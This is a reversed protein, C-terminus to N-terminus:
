VITVRKLEKPKRNIIVLEPYKSENIDIALRGFHEKRSIVYYRIIEEAQGPVTIVEKWGDDWELLISSNEDRDSFIDFESNLKQIDQLLKEPLDKAPIEKQNGDEFQVVINKITEAM